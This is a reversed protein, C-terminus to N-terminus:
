IGSNNLVISVTGNDFDVELVMYLQEAESADTYYISVTEVGGKENYAATKTLKVTTKDTTDPDFEESRGVTKGAIKAVLEAEESGLLASNVALEANVEYYSKGNSVYLKIATGKEVQGGSGTAPEQAAVYGEPLGTVADIAKGDLTFGNSYVEEPEGSLTLGATEIIKKASDLKSKKVDPLNVMVAGPKQAVEVTVVTGEYVTKGAAPDTSIVTDPTFADTEVYKIEYALKAKDLLAVAEKVTLGATVPVQTQETGQSVTLIIKQTKKLVKGVSQSQAIVVGPEYDSNYEYKPEFSFVNGYDALVQTYTHGRFDVVAHGVTKNGFLSYAFIGGIVLIAIVFAAAIGSLIPLVMSHEEEGEQEGKSEAATDGLDVFRTPEEDVFYSFEFTMDPDRRFEELDHLMEAASQYRLRQDKQMAHLTIQEVGKPISPDLETLSKPTNQLQMIAVLVASEAQFPLEGTLMEYMIVGVSYIDAKEDTTEGRAQEPSIYHVSGIAKNMVTQQTSRAFRAIGFDAVKVTGDALLMINQPKVDRHVIGKDHAHQLARLIQVAFFVAEKWRLSGHNAIYEKLTIGDILEMVMYKVAASVSADYVKVINVHNLVSIARAENIFRRVFEENDAYEDKLIKVAVARGETIDVAKYVVAMGGVGIIEELQYRGDLRQGLYKDEM